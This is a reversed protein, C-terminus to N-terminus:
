RPSPTKVEKPILLFGILAAYCLLFLVIGWESRLAHWLSQATMVGGLALTTPRGWGNKRLLTWGSAALLLFYLVLIGATMLSTARKEQWDALEGPPPPNNGLEFFRMWLPLMLSLIVVAIALNYWALLRLLGPRM